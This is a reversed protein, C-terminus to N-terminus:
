IDYSLYFLYYIVEEKQSNEHSFFQLVHITNKENIEILQSYHFM